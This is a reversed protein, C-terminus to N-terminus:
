KRGAGRRRVLMMYIGLALLSLGVAGWVIQLAPEEWNPQTMMLLLLFTTGLLAAIEGFTERRVARRLFQRNSTPM